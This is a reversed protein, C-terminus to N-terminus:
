SPRPRAAGGRMLPAESSPFLRRGGRVLDYYDRSLFAREIEADTGGDRLLRRRGTELAHDIDPDGSDTRWGGTRAGDRALFDRVRPDGDLDAIAHAPEYGCSAMDAACCYEIAALASPELASRWRQAPSPDIKTFRSEFASNGTWQRDRAHDEFRSFEIMAPRFDIGLRDCLARAFPEPATVEDEYRVLVFRGAFLDQGLFQHSLAVYKRWQRVISLVNGVQDPESELFKLTSAAVSRPDRLVVVFRAEPYARALAPLLDITWTDILGVFDTAQEHGRRVLALIRDMMVRYDAAGELGPLGPLLDAADHATRSQLRELLEPWEAPDFPVDLTGAHITRQVALRADDFYGDGFPAAPDFAALAQPPAGHAVIANRLSKYWPQFAHIAIRSAGGAAIMRALINTGGRALGTLFLPSAV